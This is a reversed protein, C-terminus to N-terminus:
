SYILALQEATVDGQIGRERLKRASIGMIKAAEQQTYVLKEPYLIDARGRIRELTPRFLEKERPVKKM